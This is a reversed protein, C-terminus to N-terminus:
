LFVKLNNLKSLLKILKSLKEVTESTSHSVFYAKFNDIEFLEQISKMEKFRTDTMPEIINERIIEKDIDRFIDSFYLLVSHSNVNDPTTIEVCLKYNPLVLDYTLERMTGIYHIAQKKFKTLDLKEGFDYRFLM